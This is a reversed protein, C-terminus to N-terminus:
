VGLEAELEARLTPTMPGSRQWQISGRRDVVLVEIRDDTTIDLARKFPGKDIYLTITAARM